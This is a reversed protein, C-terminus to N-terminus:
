RAVQVPLTMPNVRGGSDKATIKVSSVGATGAVVTFTVTYTGDALRTATKTVAAKGPQTWSVVPRTALPEIASFRVTFSQGARVPTVPPTVAFASAWVTADPIPAAAAGDDSVASAPVVASAPPVPFLGAALIAVLVGSLPSRLRSLAPGTRSM